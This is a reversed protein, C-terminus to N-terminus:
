KYSDDGSEEIPNFFSQFTGSTIDKLNRIIPNDLLNVRISLSGVYNAVKEMLYSNLESTNNSSRVISVAVEVPMETRDNIINETNVLSIGPLIQFSKTTM